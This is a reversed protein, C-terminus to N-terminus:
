AVGQTTSFTINIFLSAGFRNEFYFKGDTHTSITIVGDVGTTGTLVGTTTNIATSAISVCWASSITRISFIGRHAGAAGTTTVIAIGCSVGGDFTHSFVSDDLVTAQVAITHAVAEVRADVDAQSLNNMSEIKDYVANKTPPELVGDWSASYVEDPIIPDSSFTKVGAITTDGTDPVYDAKIAEIEDRVANKSPAITTVGNWTTADYATDSVSGSIMSALSRLHATIQQRLGVDLAKYIEWAM